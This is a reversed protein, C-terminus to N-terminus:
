LFLVQMRLFPLTIHKPRKAGFFSFALGSHFLNVRITLSGSDWSIHSRTMSSRKMNMRSLLFYFRALLDHHNKKQSMWAIDQLILIDEGIPTYSLSCKNVQYSFSTYSIYSHVPTLRTSSSASRTSGESTTPWTRTTSSWRLPASSVGVSFSLSSILKQAMKWAVKKYALDSVKSIPGYLRSKYFPNYYIVM